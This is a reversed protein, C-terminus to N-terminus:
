RGSNICNADRIIYSVRRISIRKKKLDDELPSETKFSVHALRAPSTLQYGLKYSKASTLIFFFEKSTGEVKPWWPSRTEAFSLVLMLVHQFSQTLTM